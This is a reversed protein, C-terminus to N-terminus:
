LVLTIAYRRSGSVSCVRFEIQALHLVFTACTWLPCGLPWTIESVRAARTRPPAALDEHAPRRRLRDALRRCRHGPSLSHHDSHSDRRKGAFYERLQTLAARLVPTEARGLLWREFAPEAENRRPLEIYLVADDSAVVQLVGVPTKLKRASIRATEAKGEVVSAPPQRQM